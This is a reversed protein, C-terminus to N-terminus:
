VSDNSLFRYAAKTAALSKCAQPISASPDEVFDELIKELRETLRMDGFDIHQLDKKGYM